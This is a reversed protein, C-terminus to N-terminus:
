SIISQTGSSASAYFLCAIPIHPISRVLPSLIFEFNVSIFRGSALHRDIAAFLCSLFSQITIGEEQWPFHPNGTPECCTRLPSECKRSTTWIRFAHIQAEGDEGRSECLYRWAGAHDGKRGLFEQWVMHVCWCYVILLLLYFINQAIFRGACPCCTVYMRGTQVRVEAPEDPVLAM